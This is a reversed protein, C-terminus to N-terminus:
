SLENRLWARAMRWDSKVTRVSVDLIVAMEEFSLGGFFHLEVVRSARADLERLRQLIEDLVLVDTLDGKTALLTAELTIQQQVGGRKGAQRKRAHDVLIERMIHSAVGFFHARSKWSIHPQDILRLWAENVLATPQLTHYAREHRMHRHAVHRLEKYILPVIRSEAGRNGESLQILLATLSEPANDSATANM